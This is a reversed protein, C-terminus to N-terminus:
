KKVKGIRRRSKIGALYGAAFAQETGFHGYPVRGALKEALHWKTASEQALVEKSKRLKM